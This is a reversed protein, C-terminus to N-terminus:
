VSTVEVQPDCVFEPTYERHVIIKHIEADGVIRVCFTVPWKWAPAGAVHRYCNSAHLTAARRHDIAGYSKCAEETEAGLRWVNYMTVPDRAKAM